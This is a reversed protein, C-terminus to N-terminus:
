QGLGEATQWVYYWGRFFDDPITQPLYKPTIQLHFHITSLFRLYCSLPIDSM